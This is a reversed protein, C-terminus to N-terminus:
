LSDLRVHNILAEGTETPALPAVTREIKVMRGRKALDSNELQYDCNM